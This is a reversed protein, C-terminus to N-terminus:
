RYILIQKTKLSGKSTAVRLSYVGAPLNSVDVAKNLKMADMGILKNGLLDIIEISSVDGDANVYIYNSAPNPYVDLNINEDVVSSNSVGIGRLNITYNGFDANTTLVLNGAYSTAYRPTFNILLEASSGAEVTIPLQTALEYSQPVTAATITFPKSGLNNVYLTKQVKVGVPAQDFNANGSITIISSNDKIPQMGYLIEQNENFTGSGSGIGGTGPSLASLLYYGNYAGGWGWNMSFYNDERYGDCVWAHGGEQGAGTYIVPRGSNLERKIINTWEADTTDSRRIGEILNPDYKWYTKMAYESCHTKPSSKSIVYAGSADVGYRMEVSVGILFIAYALEENKTYVQNPFLKWNIEMEDFSASITGLKYHNYSHSGKGSTPYDWYKMVQAMAIAVCGAVTRAQRSDDYPCFDNYFPAQNWKTRTLSSVADPTSTVFDYGGSLVKAWEKATSATTQINNERAYRIQEKYYNLWYEVNPPIFNPDFESDLSFGLVPLTADDGSVIVFSNNKSSYVYYYPEAAVDKTAAAEDKAVYVLQIQNASQTALEARLFFNEAVQNATNIAIPKAQLQIAFLTLILTLKIFYNKM